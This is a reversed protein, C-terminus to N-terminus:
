TPKGIIKQVPGGSGIAIMSVRVRLSLFNIFHIFLYVSLTDKASQFRGVGKAVSIRRFHGGTINRKRKQPM